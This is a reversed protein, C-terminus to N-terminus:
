LFFMAEKSEKRCTGIKQNFEKGSVAVSTAAGVLQTILRNNVPNQQIKKAFGIVREGFQAAREQLDKPIPKGSSTDERLVLIDNSSDGAWTPASAELQEFDGESKPNRGEKPNRIEPKPNTKM